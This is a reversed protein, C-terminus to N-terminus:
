EEEAVVVGWDRDAVYVYSDTVVVGNAFPTDVYGAPKPDTPDSVDFVRLGGAHAAVYVLDDRYFVDVANGGVDASGVIAPNAPDSIDIVMLGQRWDAVYAIDGAVTVAWAEGPTDVTGLLTADGGETVTFVYLGIEEMALLVLDGARAVGRASGPTNEHDVGRDRWLQFIDDWFFEWIRLGSEADAAFVYHSAGPTVEVAVVDRARTSSISNMYTPDTPDSVDVVDTGATGNAIYAFSDTPAYSVSVGSFTTAYSGAVEPQAPNSLDLVVLGGQGAAVVAIDGVVDIDEAYGVIPLSSVVTYGSPEDGNPPEVPSGREACGWSTVLACIGVLM